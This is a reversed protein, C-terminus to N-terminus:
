CGFMSCYQKEIKEVSGVNKQLLELSANILQEVIMKDINPLFFYNSEILTDLVIRILTIIHEPNELEIIMASSHFLTSLTLIIQPINHINIMRGGTIMSIKSVVIDITPRSKIIFSKIWELEDSQLNYHNNSINQLLTIYLNM